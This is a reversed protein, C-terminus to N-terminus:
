EGEILRKKDALEAADLKGATEHVSGDIHEVLLTARVTTPQQLIQHLAEHAVKPTITDAEAQTM